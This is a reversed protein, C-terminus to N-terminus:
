WWDFFKIKLHKLLSRNEDTRSDCLYITDDYSMASCRMTIESSKAFIPLFIYTFNVVIQLQKVDQTAGDPSGFLLKDM